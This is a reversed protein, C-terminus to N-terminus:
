ATADNKYAGRLNLLFLGAQLVILAEPVQLLGGLGQDATRHLSHFGSALRRRLSRSVCPISGRAVM